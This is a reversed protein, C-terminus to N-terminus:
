NSSEVFTLTIQLIPIQFIKLTRMIKSFNLIRSTLRFTFILYRLHSDLLHLTPFLIFFILSPVDSIPSTLKFHSISCRLHSNSSPPDSMPSTLKFHSIWCRLHSISCQVDSIHTQFILDSMPSTLHFM